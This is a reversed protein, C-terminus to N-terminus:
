GRRASFRTTLEVRGISNSARVRVLYAGGIALNGGATRGDWALQQPGPERKDAALTRIVIGSREITVRVDAARALTFAVTLVSGGGPHVRVAAPSAALSGLTNNLAFAREATSAQGRDDTADVTLTYPGEPLASGDTRKGEFSLAHVGPDRLGSDLVQQAGGGSIVARVRSRRVLKYSLELTDDVGDANPSVVATVPAPVYVGSYLVLLADAVQGEARPGRNLLSGDFAMSAVPGSGLAMAQVAGLRVLALALEFTTMGVSYGSLGGDTTVLVIRGDALQGVASRSTRPNLLAAAIDENARFVPQGNRVLV